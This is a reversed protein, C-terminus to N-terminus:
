CAKGESESLFKQKLIVEGLLIRRKCASCEVPINTIIYDTIIVAKGRDTELVEPIPPYM